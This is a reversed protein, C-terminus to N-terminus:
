WTKKDIRKNGNKFDLGKKDNMVIATNAQKGQDATGTGVRAM